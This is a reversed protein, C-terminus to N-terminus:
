SRSQLVRHITSKGVDMFEGIQRVSLGSKALERIRNHQDVRSTADDVRQRAVQVCAEDIDGALFRRGTQICAAPVSGSGTFPDVVLNGVRSSHTIFPLHWSVPKECPHLRKARTFIIPVDMVDAMRKEGFTLLHRGKTAYMVLEHKPAYTGALDGMGHHSKHLVLMNKLAFGADIVAAQLAGFTRWHSYIYIASGNKMVRYAEALWSTPVVDDGAIPGSWDNRGSSYNLGYPPDTLILDVSEDPLLGLLDHAPLHHVENLSSLVTNRGCKM